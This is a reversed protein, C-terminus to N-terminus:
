HSSTKKILSFKQNSKLIQGHFYKSLRMMDKYNIKLKMLTLIQIWLLFFFLNKKKFMKKLKLLYDLLKVM